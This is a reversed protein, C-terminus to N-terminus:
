LVLALDVCPQAGELPESAEPPPFDIEQEKMKLPLQVADVRQSEERQEQMLVEKQGM